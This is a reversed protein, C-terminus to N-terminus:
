PYIGRARLRRVDLPHGPTARLADRPVTIIDRVGTLEIPSIYAM